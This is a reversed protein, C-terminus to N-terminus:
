CHRKILDINADINEIENIEYAPLGLNKLFVLHTNLLNFYIPKGNYLLNLINGFAIPIKSNFIAIDIDSLIKNYEDSPLIDLLPIFQENFLTKGYEIVKEIYSIDKPYSLPCIIKCKIKYKKLFSLTDIHNLCPDASNGILINGNTLNTINLDVPLIFKELQGYTFYKFELKEVFINKQLNYYDEINYHCFYKIVSIASIWKKQHSIQKINLLFKGIINKYNHLIKKTETLYLNKKFIPYNYVDYGWFIWYVPISINNNNLFDIAYGSLSHIYLSDYSNINGISKLFSLSGYPSHLIHNSKINNVQFNDSLVIFKNNEIQRMEIVTEIFQDIFPWDDIVFHLNM